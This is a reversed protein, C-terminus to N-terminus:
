RKKGNAHQEGSCCGSSGNQDSRVGTRGILDFEKGSGSDDLAYSARVIGRCRRHVGASIREESYWVIEAAGYPLVIGCLVQKPREHECWWRVRAIRRAVDFVHRPTRASPKPDRGKAALDVGKGGRAGHLAAEVGANRAGSNSGVARIQVGRFADAEEVGRRVEVPAVGRSINEIRNVGTEVICEADAEVALRIREPNAAKVHNGADVRRAIDEVLKGHVAYVRSEFGNRGRFRHCGRFRRSEGEHGQAQRREKKAAPFLGYM